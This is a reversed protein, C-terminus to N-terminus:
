DLIKIGTITPKISLRQDLYLVHPEQDGRRSSLHCCHPELQLLCPQARGLPAPAWPAMGPSNAGQLVRALGCLSSGQERGWGWSPGKSCGLHPATPVPSRSSLGSGEM